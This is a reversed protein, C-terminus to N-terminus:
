NAEEENVYKYECWLLGDVKKKKIPPPFYTRKAWIPILPRLELNPLSPPDLDNTKYTSSTSMFIRPFAHRCDIFSLGGSKDEQINNGDLNFWIHADSRIGLYIPCSLHHPIFEILKYHFPYPDNNSDAQHIQNESGMERLEVAMYEM